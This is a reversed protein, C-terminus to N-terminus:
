EGASWIGKKTKFMNHGFFSLKKGSWGISCKIMSIQERIHTGYINSNVM